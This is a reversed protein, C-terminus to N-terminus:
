IGLYSSVQDCYYNIQYDLLLSEFRHPEAPKKFLKPNELELDHLSESLAPQGKSKRTENDQKRKAVFQQQTTEQKSINKQWIVFTNNEKSLDNICQV